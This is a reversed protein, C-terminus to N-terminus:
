YSCIQFSLNSRALSSQDRPYINLHAECSAEEERRQKGARSWAATQILKTADDSTFSELRQHSTHKRQGNVALLTIVAFCLTIYTMM